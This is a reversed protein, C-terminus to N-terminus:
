SARDGPEVQRRSREQTLLREAFDVREELSEVQGRLQGMESRLAEVEGQGTGGSGAALRAEHRRDLHRTIAKVISLAIVLTVGMGALPIVVSNWFIFDPM